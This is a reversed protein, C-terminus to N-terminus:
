NTPLDTPPEGDGPDSPPDAIPQAPADGPRLDAAAYTAPPKDPFAVRIRGGLVDLDEVRGPGDPTEM